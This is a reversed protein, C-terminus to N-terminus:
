TESAPSLEIYQSTDMNKSLCSTEDATNRLLKTSKRYASPSNGVIRKFAISFYQESAYGCYYAIESYSLNSNTLFYCARKIKLSTIYQHMSIGTIEKFIRYFHTRELGISDCIDHVSINKYYSNQIMAIAQNVYDEKRSPLKITTNHQILKSCLTYFQGLAMYNDSITSTPLTTMPAIIAALEEANEYHLVPTQYSINCLHMMHLADIGDFGIWYYIWPDEEDSQYRIPTNPLLLFCDNQQLFYTQDHVKYIGKGGVICHLSYHDVVTQASPKGQTTMHYGFDLIRITENTSKNQTFYTINKTKM